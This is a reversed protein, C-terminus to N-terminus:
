VLFEWLEKNSQDYNASNFCFTEWGMKKPVELNQITNDIFLIEGAEVGAGKQALQYIEEEPKQHGVVSSDTIVGWNFKPLLGKNRILDLMRPYMNTLLGLRCKTKLSNVVAWIGENKEFRGVIDELLSYNAPVRIEFGEKVMLFIEDVERGANAEKELIDFKDNLRGLKERPVKWGALLKQWIDTKSFDRVLVGGVDFYIFKM